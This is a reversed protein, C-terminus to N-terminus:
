GSIAEPLVGIASYNVERVGRENVRVATPYVREVESALVGRFRQGSGKFSFEYVGVGDPRMYDLVIDQKLADDSAAIFPAAFSAVKLISGLIGGTGSAKSASAMASYNAAEEEYGAINIAGQNAILQKTLSGQQASDRMVDLASGSAALGAGAVDAKQGGITQYIKRQAQTEQIATSQAAIEANQSALGAAKSYGKASAFSGVAGFLDSVAGGLDSFGAASIGPM